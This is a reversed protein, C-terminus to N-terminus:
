ITKNSLGTIVGHTKFKVSQTFLIVPYADDLFLQKFSM